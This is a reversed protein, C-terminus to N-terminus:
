TSKTFESTSSTSSAKLSTPTNPSFIPLTLDKTQIKTKSEYHAGLAEIMAADKYGYDYKNFGLRRGHIKPIARSNNRKKVYGHVKEM